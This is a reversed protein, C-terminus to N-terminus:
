GRLIIYILLTLSVKDFVLEVRKSKWYAESVGMSPRRLPCPSPGPSASPRSFPVLVGPILLHNRQPFLGQTTLFPCAAPLHSFGFHSKISMETWSFQCRMSDGADLSSSGSKGSTSLVGERLLIPFCLASRTGDLEGGGATDSKGGGVISGM